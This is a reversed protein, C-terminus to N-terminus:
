QAETNSGAARRNYVTMAKAAGDSLITRVADAARGTIEDLEKKEAPRFPRLVYAAGDSVRYGPSIGIRVRLFQNTRIAGIISEVGHHGGASGKERIRLEAWPLALDDYIVLLRDPEVEYRELLARIPGGSLNVFSQPKALLAQQGVIEGRGILCDAKRWSLRIGEELALRDIALFGLNHPTWEYRTGPNGLGVILFMPVANGTRRKLRVPGGLWRM